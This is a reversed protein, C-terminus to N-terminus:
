NRGYEEKLFVKKISIKKNVSVTLTSDPIAYKSRIVALGNYKAVSTIKGIEKMENDFIMDGESIEDMSSILCLSRQIKNYTDLRAIVEQGIYCGKTFSIWNWLNLELPNYDQILEKKSVPIGQEIRFNNFSDDPIQVTNMSSDSILFRSPTGFYDTDYGTESASITGIHLDISYKNSVNDLVIDEMIIFKSLWLIIENAMQYSCIILLQQSANVVWVADIVRGKETVILTKQIDGIKFKSFDNTTIRQLFDVSDNGIMRIVDFPFREFVQKQIMTHADTTVM